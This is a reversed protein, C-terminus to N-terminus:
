QHFLNALFGSIEPFMKSIDYFFTVFFAYSLLKGAWRFWIPLPMVKRSSEEGREVLAAPKWNAGLASFLQQRIENAFSYGELSDGVCINRGDSTILDLRYWVKTTNGSKSSSNKKIHIDLIQKAEVSEELKFGLIKQQKKVGKLSVEVILSNAMLYIGLSCLVLIILFILAMMLSSTAPMFDMFGDVFFYSFVSLGISTFILILAIGSSRGYGYYFETGSATKTIDPTSPKKDVEVEVVKSANQIYRSMAAISRQDAIEMPIIFVQDYDIGAMPMLVHLEWAHYNDETEEGGAPLDEPPNFSFNVRIMKGFDIPKISAHDQWIPITEWDNDGNREREYFHHICALSVSIQRVQDKSVPLDLYGSVQGGVQGPFPDMVLSARGFKFWAHTDKIAKHILWLGIVPFCVFFLFVPNQEFSALVKEGAFIIVSWVFTNWVLAFFWTPWFHRAQSLVRNAKTNKYM